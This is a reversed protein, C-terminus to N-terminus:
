NLSVFTALRPDNQAAAVVAAQLAEYSVGAPVMVSIDRQVPQFKSVSAHWPVDITLLSAMDLEFVIPAHPLGYAQQLKPHLEGVFGVEVGDKMVAASRGPHLAPFAKAVYQATKPAILREVDGKGDFFDVLRAKEGWQEGAADGYLLGAVRVPQRVGKVTWETTVVSEDPYFVRGVEFLKASAVKRNLNYKLIDVLGGIMQTRMVSLQSAIPNLLRIPKDNDAFDKEWAEPVFSFNILEQYGMDALQMRIDHAIRSGEPRMVMKAEAMPPVDPLKEYGYLRAVEEILDEEIQIDFRYTPSTVTFVEDELTFEFGLRTFCEAMMSTEIPMGIIKRARDARMQVKAQQPVNVIQDVVPGVKTAETGCIDVILKTIYHMHDANSGFDVGREFRHAADTSFNLRRCRGQIKEQHWFAAEVFLDTTELSISSAEGGMIGALCEPTDGDCVVGFYPDLQVTQGNLLACSEGERAWRVVVKDGKLKNLDFFHSPRGLELMVYNSIDVLANISRQGSRELRDKMWQPTEAKANLGRIVRGTFRGCLDTAEIEVPLTCECTAPVEDMKPMHLEAGTVAHLDRAVGILSLADGRNPTLKIEIKKDDLHCATRIDEGVTLGEPLTWLGSHDETIGLERASCLMGFSEVGRMKAKKIKFDGPLVAGIKACPVLVGARVNPAGCVIQVPEADGVDVTCVHLHDSNEHDVCTLVRAVVIGSFAPAVPAVEEVELGAMTMAECLADTDMAPDIYSRLWSESFLM